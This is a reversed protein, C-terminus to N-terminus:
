IYELLVDISFPMSDTLFFADLAPTLSKVTYNIKAPFDQVSLHARLLRGGNGKILAPDNPGAKKQRNRPRTRPRFEMIM